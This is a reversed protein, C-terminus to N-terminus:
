VVWVGERDDFLHLGSRTKWGDPWTRWDSAKAYTISRNGQQISEVGGQQKDYDRLVATVVFGIANKLAEKLDADSGPPDDEDYGILQVEIANPTKALNEKGTTIRTEVSPREKFYTIIQKEVQDVINELESHSRVSSHLLKKDDASSHDFFDAM